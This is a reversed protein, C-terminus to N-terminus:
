WGCLSFFFSVGTANLADRMRSYEAYATQHDQV